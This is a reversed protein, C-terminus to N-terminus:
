RRAGPLPLGLRPDFLYVDPGGNLVVGCAWLRPADAPKDRCFVLCGLFPPTETQGPKAAAEDDAAGLQDLLDLYVLARELPTGSARRLAFQPPTLGIPTPEALRVERVAWAFAATARELPSPAPLDGGVEEPELAHTAADHLLFAGDLHWGDLLTYSEASVEAM